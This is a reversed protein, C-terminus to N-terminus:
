VAIRGQDAIAQALALSMGSSKTETRLQVVAAPNAPYTVISVDFLKVELIRRETYDDNWEQRLVQFAFSCEDVDGRELGSNLEQVRPNAAALTSGFRLGTSDSLLDLTKPKTRALPLGEHNILLRVDDRERVSKACAADAITETWGYKSPGGAVDYAFEYVTAYGDVIPNGADDTRHEIKSRRAELLNQRQRAQVSFPFQADLDVDALRTLVEPPLNRLDREM